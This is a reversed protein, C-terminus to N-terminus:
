ILLRRLDPLRRRRDLQLRRASLGGPFLLRVDSLRHGHGARQRARLDRHVRHAPLDHGRRQV